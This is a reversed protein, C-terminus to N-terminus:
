VTPRVEVSRGPCCSRRSPRARSRVGLKEYAHELHKGVTASSLGLRDAIEAHSHGRVAWVLAEAERLTLAAGDGTWSARGALAEERLRILDQHIVGMIDQERRTFDSGYRWLLVCAISGDADFLWVKLADRLRNRDFSSGHFELRELDRRRIRDVDSLAGHAPTWRLWGIPNQATYTLMAEDTGPASVVDDSEAYAITARDTRRLEFYVAEDAGILDRIAVLTARPLPDSRTGVSAAGIFELIRRLDSGHVQGM